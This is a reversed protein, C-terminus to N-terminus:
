TASLSQLEIELTQLSRKLETLESRASTVADMDNSIQQQLTASKEQFGAEADRRNQEALAEYEARMNNLLVTLDVGPAANMEVNVNGGAACQLVKMEEEHNKKLYTMEESLSEYQLEQDTRCLTLEDLVRRLGNIDAEVNQHLTLENEYKLRFDDAALRANDIQLIINANAATSSII